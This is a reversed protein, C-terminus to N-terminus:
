AGALQMLEVVARKLDTAPGRQLRNELIDALEKYYALTEMKRVNFREFVEDGMVHHDKVISRVNALKDCASVLLVSHSEETWLHALHARRREATPPKPTVITDSCRFVIDAVGPGFRQRIDDARSAGGGDEVADHLLGAIAEDEDAGYELALGAVVLLHSIYPVNTGKRVQGAHVLVAYQLAQDFRSTLAM